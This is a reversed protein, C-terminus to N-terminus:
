DGRYYGMLTALNEIFEVTDKQSIGGNQVISEASSIRHGDIFRVVLRELKELNEISVPIRPMVRRGKVNTAKVPSKAQNSGKKMAMFELSWEM